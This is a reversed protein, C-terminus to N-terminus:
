EPMKKGRGVLGAGRDTMLQMRGGMRGHLSGNVVVGAAGACVVTEVVLGQRKGLGRESDPFNSNVEWGRYSRECCNKVLIGCSFVKNWLNYNGDM